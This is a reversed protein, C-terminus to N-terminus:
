MKHSWHAFPYNQLNILLCGAAVQMRWTLKEMQDPLSVATGSISWSFEDGREEGEVASPSRSIKLWLKEKPMKSM